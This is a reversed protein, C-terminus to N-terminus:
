KMELSDPGNIVQVPLLTRRLGFGGASNSRCLRIACYEVRKPAPACPQSRRWGCFELMLPRSLWGEPRRDHSSRGRPPSGSVGPEPADQSRSMEQPNKKKLLHTLRELVAIKPVRERVGRFAATIHLPVYPHRRPCLHRAGVCTRELSCAQRGRRERDM